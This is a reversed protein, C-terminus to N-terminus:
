RGNLRLLVFQNGRVVVEGISSLDAFPSDPYSEPNVTVVYEPKVEELFRARTPPPVDALFLERLSRDRRAAYDPTESWHGAYTYVGALGSLIPNLDPVLPRIFRTPAGESMAPVGPIAVVVRRARDDSNLEELIRSVDTSTFAPQVTTTSVNDRILEFERRLWLFSSGGLLLLFVGIVFNRNARMYRRLLEALGVAALLAFPIMLGAALKRQFLAPFYPAIVGLAAWALLLNWLVDKRAGLWCVALGGAFLAGWGLASFAFADQTRYAVAFLVVLTASWALVAGRGRRPNEPDHSLAIMALGLTPLLGAILTPAGSTFTPTAARAGFVPDQQLVHVFWLAGPLVGALMVVVRGLWVATFQGSKLSAVLLGILVLGLLLVDYSHINMLLGFAVAGAPVWRWSERAEVVAIVAVLMLCLSVVFLGNTLASPFVMVEPQWVDVPLHGGFLPGFARGIPSEIVRGFNQWVLLGVGGAFVSMLLAMKCIFLNLESRRILAGLLMVVGFSGLARGIQSAEVLGTLKAIQGLVWFYLHVTLGPQADVAFRNDFFFQGERAQWMWASYVMHDDTNFPTGLYRM